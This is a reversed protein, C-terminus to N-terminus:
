GIEKPPRQVYQFLKQAPKLVPALYGLPLSNRLWAHYVERNMKVINRVSRNSIGGLTMRVLVRDVYAVPIKHKRLLRLMLEYDAAIHFREMDFVGFREYVNRCVFFTPHPPAWGLHFKWLSCGGSRWYRVVRGQADVYVLDGYCAEIRPNEFVTLVDHLVATDAYRDDANLIGVLDGTALAIGKNMADYMGQDPESVLVALRGGDRYRELAELTGDKSGGDIVILELEADLEQSLISDLAGAVRTDNYVPTIISIKM